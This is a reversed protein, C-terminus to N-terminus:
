RRMVFRYHECPGEPPPALHHVLLIGLPTKARERWLSVGDGAEHGIVHEFFVVQCQLM